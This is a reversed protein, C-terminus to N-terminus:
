DHAVVNSWIRSIYRQLPTQPAEGYGTWRDRAARYSAAEMKCHYLPACAAQSRGVRDSSPFSLYLKPSTINIGRSARTAHILKAHSLSANQLLYPAFLKPGEFCKMMVDPQPANLKAEACFM